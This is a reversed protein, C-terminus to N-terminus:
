HGTARQLLELASEEDDWTMQSVRGTKGRNRLWYEFHYKLPDYEIIFERFPLPALTQYQDLVPVAVVEQHRQGDLTYDLLAIPIIGVTDGPLLGKGIIWTNVKSLSQSESFVPVFGQNVPYPLLLPSKIEVTDLRGTELNYRQTLHSGVSNEIYAMYGDQDRMKPLVLSPESSSEPQKHCGVILLLVLFQSLIRWKM